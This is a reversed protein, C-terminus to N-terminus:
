QRKTIIKERRTEKNIGIKGLIETQKGWMRKRKTETDDNWGLVHLIGHCIYFMLEYFFDNGYEKAQRATTDLSIVINGQLIKGLAYRMSCLSRSNERKNKSEIGKARQETSGFSIVDTAWDHNLFRSNMTRIKKDTVLLIDLESQNVKLQNLIKRVATKIRPLSLKYRKAEQGIFIRHPVTKMEM